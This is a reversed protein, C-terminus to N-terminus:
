FRFENYTFHLLDVLEICLHTYTDKVIKRYM